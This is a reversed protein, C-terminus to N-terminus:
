RPLDLARIRGRGNLNVAWAVRRGEISLGIPRGRSRWVLEPRGALLMYVGAGDLFVIGGSGIALDSAGAVATAALLEGSRADYREIVTTGDSRKVLVALEPWSLAVDRVTGAPDVRTLTRGTLDYM